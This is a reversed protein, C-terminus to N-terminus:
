LDDRQDHDANNRNRPEHECLRADLLRDQRQRQESVARERDRARDTEDDAEREEARHRVEREIELEDFAHARGLRTKLQRRHHEAQEHRRNEASQQDRPPPPVSDKRNDSRCDHRPSHCQERPEPNPRAEPHGREVHDDKSEPEPHHHLDEHERHLVRDVVPEKPDGRGARRHEPRDAARDPNRKEARDEGVPQVGLQRLPQRWARV